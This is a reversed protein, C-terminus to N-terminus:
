AADIRRLGLANIAREEILGPDREGTAVVNVIAKAILETIQDDRNTIGLDILASEYAASMLEIEKQGFSGNAILKYIAM